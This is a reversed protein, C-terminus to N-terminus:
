QVLLPFDMGTTFSVPYQKNGEHYKETLEPVQQNVYQLLSLMTIIGESSAPAPPKGKEGLGRLLAYTLVGHGLEPVELAYQQKTAAAILYVGNSRALMKTAKQEALGMGRFMVAKALIPLATGSQCTDLILVQKLAPIRRLADGLVTAPIGYKRIPAQEDLEKRMEHPLFYFQQGLGVGHGAMYLLVVDEPRAREALEDLAKRIGAQTADKDFLMATKVAGFLKNGQRSFFGAIAEGDQRAFGLNFSPDEYQNIGVVLLHLTPKTTEPADCVVRMSDDYGEVREKSLAVAKFINEGPVLDVEFKYSTRGGTSDGNVLKGNQYLRVDAIGGGLDTVEVNVMTRTQKVPVTGTPSTIRADPPLRLSAVDMKPKPREGALLRSLLGPTYYDAFFRDPPYIRNGIRWSVIDQTGKDTGDFLGDPTAAVWDNSGLLAIMVGLETGTAPDWIHTTGTMGASTLWRGDPSFAIGTVVDSHGTMSLLGRGTDAEWLRVTQDFGGSALRRGDPSFAVAWVQDTHGLLTHLERGTSVEWLKTTKDGSGSALWRGDPSFAVSHVSATHGSLSFMERGTTLEWLKVTKDASGSALWRGDPSIAVTGVVDGHGTLVRSVRETEVELLTVSKDSTYLSGLALWRGDSSIAVPGFSSYGGLQIGLAQIQRLAPLLQRQQELSIERFEGTTIGWLKATVRAKEVSLSGLWQGDLSFGALGRATMSRAPFTRAERGTAVDWLKITKDRSGSALWRGDPSFGVAAAYGTHGSLTRVERGTAVEWLKTTKDRSGTALWRGDPSFGVAFVMDAHGVLTRVERGTTAEWLKPERGGTALLRGDPSFAVAWVFDANELTHAEHGTGLNWLRVTKDGSGSALWRGDPSFAVAGVFKGHGTLIREVKGSTVDWLKVSNDSGGSALWRGDPSFVVAYVAGRDGLVRIVRGTTVEWLRITQDLSASALWRGDPTFVADWVTDTHGTLTRLQRGTAIDWLKVTTDYSGSALWRGDPSFAVACVGDGHGTQLVLEPRLRTPTDTPTQAAAPILGLSVFLLVGQPLRRM